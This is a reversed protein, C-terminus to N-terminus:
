REPACEDNSEKGRSTLGDRPGYGGGGVCWGTVVRLSGIRASVPSVSPPRASWAGLRFGRRGGRQLFGGRAGRDALRAAVKASDAALLLLPGWVFMVLSGLLPIVVLLAVVDSTTDDVLPTLSGILFFLGLGPLLVLRLVLLSTPPVAIQWGCGPAPCVARWSDECEGAAVQVRLASM